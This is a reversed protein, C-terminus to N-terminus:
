YLPNRLKTYEYFPMGDTETDKSCLDHLYYLCFYKIYLSNMPFIAHYYAIKFPYANMHLIKESNRECFNM